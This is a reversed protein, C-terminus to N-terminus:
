RTRSHQGWVEFFPRLSNPTEPKKMTTPGLRVQDGSRQIEASLEFYEGESSAAFLALVEGRDLRHEAHVFPENPKLEAVWMENIAFVRDAGSRKVDLAIRRFMGYKEARDAMPARIVRPSGFSDQIIFTPGHYGDREFIVRALNFWRAGERELKSSHEGLFEVDPKKLISAMDGYREQVKELEQTSLTMETREFEILEGTSLKLWSTRDPQTVRMQPFKGELSRLKAGTVVTGDPSSFTLGELAQGALELGELLMLTLEGIVHSLADLLEYEPLSTAVWRREACLLGNERVDLPRSSTDITSILRETSVFPCVNFEKEKTNLWDAVVTARLRSHTELDGRKEITNRADVAWRMVADTRFRTQWGGDGEYWKSYFPIEAKTSQLIFTVQRLTTICANVNIRFDDPEGYTQLAQFWHRIADFLRLQVKQLSTNPSM